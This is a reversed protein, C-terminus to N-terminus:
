DVPVSTLKGALDVRYLFVGDSTGLLLLVGDAVPHLRFELPPAATWRSNRLANDYLVVDDTKALDPAKALRMRLGADGAQWVLLVRDDITAVDLDHADVPTVDPNGAFIERTQVIRSTCGDPTCASESVVPQYRGSEIHGRHELLTVRAGDCTMVGGAGPTDLVVPATWTGDRHFSFYEANWGHARLAVVGKSRCGQDRADRAGRAGGPGGGSVVEGAAGIDVEPGVDNGSIERVRLRVGRADATAGKVVVFSWFLNATLEPNGTQHRTLIPTETTKDLGGDGVRRDIHFLSVRSIGPLADSSTALWLGDATAYSGYLTHPSAAAAPVAVRDGSAVDFLEWQAEDGSFVVPRANVDRTGAPSLAEKGGAASGGLPTCRARGSAYLCYAPGVGRADGDLVFPTVDDFYPAFRVSALYAATSPRPSLTAKRDLSASTDARADRPPLPVDDVRRMDRDAYRLGALWALLPETISSTSAGEAEFATALTETAQSRARSGNREELSALAHAYAVCRAPWPVEPSALRTEPSIGMATLEAGRVAEVARAAAAGPNETLSKRPIRAPDGFVCTALRDTATQLANAAARENEHSAYLIVGVTALVLTVPVSLRLRRARSEARARSKGESAGPSAVM